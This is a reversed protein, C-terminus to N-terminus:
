SMAPEATAVATFMREHVRMLCRREDCRVALHADRLLLCWQGEGHYRRARSERRMQM